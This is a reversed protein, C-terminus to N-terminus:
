PPYPVIERLIFRESLANPLSRPGHVVPRGHAPSSQRPPPGKGFSGAHGDVGLVVHDHEVSAGMRDDDEVGLPAKAARPALSDEAPWMPDGHAGVTTIPQGVVEMVGDPLERGFAPQQEGDPIGVGRRGELAALREVSRRVDGQARAGPVEVDRVTVAVGTYVLVVRSATVEERPPLRSGVWATEVQRVVNGGIGLAEHIYGIALVM